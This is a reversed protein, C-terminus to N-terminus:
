VVLDLLVSQKKTTTTRTAIELQPNHSAPQYEAEAPATEQVLHEAPEMEAEGPAVSHKVQGTLVYAETPLVSHVAQGEPIADAAPDEAQAHAGPLKVM